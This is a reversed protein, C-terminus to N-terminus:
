IQCSQQATTLLTPPPAQRTGIFNVPSGNSWFAKIGPHGLYYPKGEIQPMTYSPEKDQSIAGPPCGNACKHCSHCFRWMGADIPKSPALPLDTLFNHLRGQNGYEPTLTYIGQRSMEGVGTLNAAAGEVFPTGDDSGVGLYQYGLYTLFLTTGCDLGPAAKNGCGEQMAAPGCRGRDTNGVEFISIYCMDKNPVVYKGNANGNYTGQYGQDVDEFVIIPCTSTGVPCDDALGTSPTIYGTTAGKHNASIVQNKAKDTLQGFGLVGAGQLRMFASLMGSAEEPTGTWAPEGRQAPTQVPAYAAGTWSANQAYGHWAKSVYGPWTINGEAGATAKLARQKYSYGTTDKLGKVANYGVQKAAMTRDAGYYLSM